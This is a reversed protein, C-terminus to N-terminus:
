SLSGFRGSPYLCIRSAIRAKSVNSSRLRRALFSHNRGSARAKPVPTGCFTGYAELRYAKLVKAASHPGQGEEDFALGAVPVLHSCSARLLACVVATTSCALSASTRAISDFLIITLIRRLSMAQFRYFRRHSASVGAGYLALGACRVPSLSFHVKRARIRTAESLTMEVFSRASIM